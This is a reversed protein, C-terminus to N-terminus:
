LYAAPDIYTGGGSYPNGFSTLPWKNRNLKNLGTKIARSKRQLIYRLSVCYDSFKPDPDGIGSNNIVWYHNKLNHRLTSVNEKIFLRPHDEFGRSKGRFFDNVVSIGAEPNRNWGESLFIGNHRFEDWANFGTVLANNKDKMKPDGYRTIKLRRYGEIEQIAQCTQMITKGQGAKPSLEDWVVVDGKNPGGMYEFTWIIAPPKSAHWDVAMEFKVDPDDFPVEFDFPLLHGTKTEPSWLYDQYGPHVLKGWQPYDGYLQIRLEEETKGRSFKRIYDDKIAPNDAMAARVVYLDNNENREFADILKFKTWSPGKQKGADDFPPTYAHLIRGGGKATRLGRKSEDYAQYDSEEDCGLLDFNTGSHLRKKQESTQFFLTSGNKLELTRDDRSPEKKIMSKALMPGIVCEPAEKIYLDNREDRDIFTEAKHQECFFAVRKDKGERFIEFRAPMYQKELCAEKFIKGYGHEFDNLLVKCKLPPEAFQHPHIGYLMCIINWWLIHSKGCGNGACFVVEWYDKVANVFDRQNKYHWHSHWIFLPMWDQPVEAM